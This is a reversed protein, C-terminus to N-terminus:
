FYETRFKPLYLIGGDSTCIEQQELVLKAQLVVFMWIRVKFALILKRYIFYDAYPM